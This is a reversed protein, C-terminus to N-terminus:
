WGPLTFMVIDRLPYLEVTKSYSVYWLNLHLPINQLCRPSPRQIQCYILLFSEVCFVQDLSLVHVLHHSTSFISSRVDMNM